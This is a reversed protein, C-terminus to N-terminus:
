IFHNRVLKIIATQNPMQSVYVLKFKSKVLPVAVRESICFLKINKKVLKIEYDSLLKLFTETALLSYFLIAKIESRNIKAVLNNSLKLRPITKYIIKKEIRIKLKNTKQFFDNNTINSGLYIFNNNKFKLSKLFYTLGKSDKTTKLIKKCGIEKLAQKVKLGIVLIKAEYFKNIQNSKILSKVSHLSPFIYYIDKDFNINNKCYKISYFNEQFTQLGYKNLKSLLYKSEEKPRTILIM